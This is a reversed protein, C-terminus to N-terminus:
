EEGEEDDLLDGVDALEPVYHKGIEWQVDSRRFPMLERVLLAGLNDGRPLTDEVLEDLWECIADGIRGACETAREKDSMGRYEALTVGSERVVDRAIATAAEHSGQDNDVVLTIRRVFYETLDSM